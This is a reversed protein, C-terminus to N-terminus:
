SLLYRAVGGECLRTKPETSLCAGFLRAQGQPEEGADGGRAWGSQIYKHTHSNIDINVEADIVYKM